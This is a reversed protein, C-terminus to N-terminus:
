DLIGTLWHMLNLAFQQNDTGALNMGIRVPEAPRGEPDLFRIVQASLMAAEALVVVRGKGHRLAVGQARGAASTGRPMAGGGTWQAVSVPLDVAAPSLVLFAGAGAPVSVSQGTFAIVRGIREGGHRGRTIPHDALTGSERTYVLVGPNRAASDAMTSDVTYGKSMTVGFKLSLPEAAAGFPAHDAILLLAGGRRVWREVVQAERESLAPGGTGDPGARGLANAIVLIDCRDLRRLTFPHLNPLVNYGDAELLKVFPAYRGTTTHFNNHAEDVLVRPHKFPFAPDAVRPVFSSDAVQQARAAAPVLALAAALLLPRFPAPAIM